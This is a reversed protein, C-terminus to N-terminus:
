YFWILYVICSPEIHDLLLTLLNMNWCVQVFILALITIKLFSLKIEFKSSAKPLMLFDTTLRLKEKHDKPSAGVNVLELCSLEELFRKM